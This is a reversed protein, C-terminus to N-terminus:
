CSSAAASPCVAAAAQRDAAVLPRPSFSHLQAEPSRSPRGRYRAAAGGLRRKWRAAARFLGDERRPVCVDTGSRMMFSAVEAQLPVQPVVPSTRRRGSPQVGLHQLSLSQTSCAATSQAPAQLGTHHLLPPRVMEVKELEQYCIVGNPPLQFQELAAEICERLAAGKKGARTQPRVVAGAEELAARVPAPSADVLLLPIGLSKAKRCAQLGLQCRVDNVSPFFTPSVIVMQTPAPAMAAFSALKSVKSSQAFTPQAFAGFATQPQQKGEACASRGGLFGLAAGAATGCVRRAILSRAYAMGGLAVLVFSLPTNFFPACSRLCVDLYIYAFELLCCESVNLFVTYFRCPCACTRYYVLLVTRSSIDCKHM